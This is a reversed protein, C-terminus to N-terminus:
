EWTFLPQWTYTITQSATATGILWKGVLAIFEGPNVYIPADGLSLYIRGQQSPAAINAGIAWSQFGLSIRRPAKTTATSFSAGDSTALSVATHGFAVGWQIATATTAVAAGTNLSDLYIGRIVLRRGQVTASGLPVQYSGFILDNPSSAAATAVGQGGLGGPLNATLATGSPVAATPTNNLVQTALSGMTGGSLGQYSGLVRNQITGLCDAYQPGRVLVRYDKILAQTIAGATGGVIAHRISWPLARSMCSFSASAPTPIEGVLENNIWFTTSVNNMQILYRNTANNAYVWSGSGLALPFVTTTAVEVGANNIVGLLGAASLRFYVGDLGLFAPTAGRQFLGFDIVTNSNPQASFAVSTECVVTQTGGVPFMAFTGFTMGTNTAVGSGSNTLLGSSSQTATLTTFAHVFKGTNQATDIFSEQDLLNDHAVRLRYDLDVEPPLVARAGSIRGSDVESFMTNGNAPGGGRFVGLSSNGPGVTALNFSADVNAQGATNSGGVINADLAM